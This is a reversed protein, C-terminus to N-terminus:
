RTSMPNAAPPLRSTVRADARPRAWPEGCELFPSEEIARGIAARLVDRDARSGHESFYSGVAALIQARIHGEFGIANLYGQWGSGIRVADFYVDTRSIEDEILDESEKESSDEDSLEAESRDDQAAAIEKVRKFQSTARKQRLGLEAAVEEETPMCLHVTRQARDVLGLRRGALPDVLGDLLEPENIYHPQV